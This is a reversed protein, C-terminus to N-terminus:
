GATCPLRHLSNCAGPPSMIGWHAAFDFSIQRQHEIALLYLRGGIQAYLVLYDALIYERLSEANTTLELSKAWLAAPMQYSNAGCPAKAEEFQPTQAAM